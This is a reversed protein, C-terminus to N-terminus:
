SPRLYASEIKFLAAAMDRAEPDGYGEHLPITFHAEVAAMCNPLAYSADTRGGYAPDTWPYGSSGYTIRERFWRAESPVARYEPSCPIGEAALAQVVTQKDVRLCSRDLRMRLFWYVPEAGDPVWGLHAARLGRTERALAAAFSRRRAAIHPLRALQVRGIAASLENGNLNLGMRVNTEFPTNFPKGRDAFRRAEWYLGEDRTYVVGGQAGTAHHKGSMTSFAAITGMTGVLRGKYRAGHAQACDEIIPLQRAQALALIPDMDAPEGAIHAVIIARTRESIVEAIEQAGANYSRPHADAVVPVCNLIPVPMVGGPDTIPPVVVESLPELRLAALATLVAATGSSVMDAYGGGHFASFEREYAQEEPGNYGFAIGSEIARDFVAIAAAKEQAGFLHRDPFPVSRVPRGGEIALASM